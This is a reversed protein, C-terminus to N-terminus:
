RERLADLISEAVALQGERRAQDSLQVFDDATRDTGALVIWFRVNDDAFELPRGDGQDPGLFATSTLEPLPDAGDVRGLVQLDREVLEAGRVGGEGAVHSALVLLGRDVLGPSRDVPDGEAHWICSTGTAGVDIIPGVVSALVEPAVLDCLAPVEAYRDPEPPAAGALDPAQPLRRAVMGLVREVVAAEDDLRVNGVTVLLGDACFGAEATRVGGEEVRYADWGEVTFETIPRGTDEAMRDPRACVDPGDAAPRSVTVLLERYTYVAPGVGLGQWRCGRQEIGPTPLRPSRLGVAPGLDQEVDDATLLACPDPLARPPEDGTCAGTVALSAVM